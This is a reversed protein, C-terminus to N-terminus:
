RKLLKSVLSNIGMGVLGSVQDSATYSTGNVDTITHYQYTFTVEFTAMENNAYDLDVQGISKPWVDFLKYTCIVSGDLGLLEITQDAMFDSTKGYVGKPDHIMYNWVLFKKFISADGNIYFSVNWDQTRRVTPIKYQNGCFFTSTEEVTSDPLTTSKVYYKSEVDSQFLGKTISSTLGESLGSKLAKLTNNLSLLSSSSGLQLLNSPFTFHCLFLYSRAYGDFNAKYSDIDIRRKGAYGILPDVYTERVNEIMNEVTQTKFINIGM